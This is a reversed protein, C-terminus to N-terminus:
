GLQEPSQSIPVTIQLDVPHVTIWCDDQLHEWWLNLQLAHLPRFLHCAIQLVHAAQVVHRLCRVHGIHMQELQITSLDRQLAPTHRVWTSCCMCVNSCLQCSVNLSDHRFPAVCCVRQAHRDLPSTCQRPTPVRDQMQCLIPAICGIQHIHNYSQTFCRPLESIGDSSLLVHTHSCWDMAPICVRSLKVINSCSSPSTGLGPLSKHLAQVKISFYECM